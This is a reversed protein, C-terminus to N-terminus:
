DIDAIPFGSELVIWCRNWTGVIKKSTASIARIEAEYSSLSMREQRKSLWGLPGGHQFVIGGTMSCFKFLPLLTVETVAGGIHLGWCLNSYSSLTSSNVTTPPTFNQYAEINTSLPYHIYSHMPVTNNSAFSIEYDHNFHIYHLAHLFAKMHWKSPKNSYSSLFSHVMTLTPRTSHALWDISGILNQYVERWHNLAPSDDDESSKAIANIPIGSQYATATPMQNRDHMSFSEVLNSAFGSQNLHVMVSSPMIRWLFHMGLIWSVIGM